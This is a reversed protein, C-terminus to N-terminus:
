KLLTKLKKQFVGTEFFPQGGIFISDGTCILLDLNTVAAPAATIKVFVASDCGEHGDFHFEFNGAACLTTDAGSWCEGDCITTEILTPAINEVLIQLCVPAATDCVNSAQLCLNHLGVTTWDIQVESDPGDAIVSGDLKWQFHAAGPPAAVTYKETRGPCVTQDGSLIGSNPLQGVLTTGSVVAITYSCVDGGNGDM